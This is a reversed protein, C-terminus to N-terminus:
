AVGINKRMVEPRCLKTEPGKLRPEHYIGTPITETEQTANMTTSRINGEEWVVVASSILAYRINPEDGKM